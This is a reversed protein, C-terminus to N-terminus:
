YCPPHQLSPWLRASWHSCAGAILTVSRFRASRWDGDSPGRGAAPSAIGHTPTDGRWRCIGPGPLGRGPLWACPATPCGHGGTRATAKGGRIRPASGSPTCPILPMQTIKHSWTEAGYLSPCVGVGRGKDRAGLNTARHHLPLVPSKPDGSGPEFGPRAALSVGLQAGAGSTLRHHGNAALSNQAQTGM